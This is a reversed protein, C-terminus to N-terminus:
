YLEGKFEYPSEHIDRKKISNVSVVSDVYDMLQKIETLNVVKRQWPYNYIGHLVKSLDNINYMRIGNVLNPKPIMEDWEWKKITCSKKNLLKALDTITLPENNLIKNRVREKNREIKEEETLKKRPM